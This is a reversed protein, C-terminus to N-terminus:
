YRGQELESEDLIDQNVNYNHQLGSCRSSANGPAGRHRAAHAPLGRGSRVPEMVLPDDSNIDGPDAPTVGGTSMVVTEPM